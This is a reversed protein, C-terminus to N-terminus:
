GHEAAWALVNKVTDGYFTRYLSETVYGVHPTALVNPLTRFPHDAPLPEQDYVDLAAGALEGRRLAAVLASENVIPGRSTNVLRASRKMLALESEGVLGETRSSLLVHVTLIDATRFLEEKDVHRVGSEAAKEVTLNQSWAIVHMGFAAGVAAVQRGIRGLGLVGLTQGALDGGLKTQWGGARMSAADDALHRVSGLILAWTMEAAPQSAYGTAMVSIGREEAARRDISRNVPGTSAIMRLRPLREIVSRPLPTRERMVCVVDFPLLREVVRDEDPEHDHFVHLEAFKEVESWDAMSRAVRQYDDLIAIKLPSM